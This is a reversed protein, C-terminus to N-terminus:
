SDMLIWVRISTQVDEWYSIEQAAPIKCLAHFSGKTQINNRNLIFLHTNIYEEREMKGKEGRPLENVMERMVSSIRV